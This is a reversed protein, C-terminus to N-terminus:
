RSRASRGRKRPTTSARIGRAPEMLSSCHCLGEDAVQAHQVLAPSWARDSLVNRSSAEPEDMRDPGVRHQQDVVDDAAACLGAVRDSRKSRGAGCFDSRRCLVGWGPGRRGMRVAGEGDAGRIGLAALFPRRSSPTGLGGPAFRRVHRGCLSATVRRRKQAPRTRTAASMDEQVACALPLTPRRHRERPIARTEEGRRTKRDRHRDCTKGRSRRWTGSSEHVGAFQSCNIRCAPGGSV